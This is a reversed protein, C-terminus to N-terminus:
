GGQVVVLLLRICSDIAAAAQQAARARERGRMRGPHVARGPPAGENIAVEPQDDLGAIM